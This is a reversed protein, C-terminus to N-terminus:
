PVFNSSRAHRSQKWREEYILTIQSMTLITKSTPWSRWADGRALRVGDTKAWCDCVCVIM